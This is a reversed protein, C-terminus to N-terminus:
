NLNINIGKLASELRKKTRFEDIFVVKHKKRLAELLDFVAKKAERKLLPSGTYNVSLLEAMQSKADTTFSIAVPGATITQVSANQMTASKPM